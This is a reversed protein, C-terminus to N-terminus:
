HQLRHHPQLERLLPTSTPQARTATDPHDASGRSDGLPLKIPSSVDVQGPSHLPWQMEKCLTCPTSLRSRRMRPTQYWHPNAVVATASTRRPPARHPPGQLFTSQSVQKYLLQGPMAPFGDRSPHTERSRLLEARPETRHRRRTPLPPPSSQRFLDGRQSFVAISTRRGPRDPPGVRHPAHPAIANSGEPPPNDPDGCLSQM